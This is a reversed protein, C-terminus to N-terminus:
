DKNDDKNINRLIEDIKQAYAAGDDKVFVFEPSRRIHLKKSLEGRIFGQGKTLAEIAKKCAEDGELVSLYVKANTLDPSTEVRMVTWLCELRPDKMRSIISILEKKIDENLREVKTSAM